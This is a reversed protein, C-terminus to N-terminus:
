PTRHTSQKMVAPSPSPSKLQILKPAAVASAGGRREQSLTGMNITINSAKLGRLDMMIGPTGPMGPMPMSIKPADDIVDGPDPKRSQPHPVQSKPIGEAM